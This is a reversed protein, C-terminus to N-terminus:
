HSPCDNTLEFNQPQSNLIESKTITSKFFYYNLSERKIILQHQVITAEVMHVHM